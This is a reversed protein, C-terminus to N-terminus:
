ESKRVSGFFDDALKGMDDIEPSTYAQKEELQTVTGIAHLERQLAKKESEYDEQSIKGLTYDSQLLEIYKELYCLRNATKGNYDGAEEIITEEEDEGDYHNAIIVGGILLMTFIALILIGMM